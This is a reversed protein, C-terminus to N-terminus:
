DQLFNNRKHYQHHKEQQLFKEKDVTDPLVFEYYQDYQKYLNDLLFCMGQLHIKYYKRHRLYQVKALFNMKYEM